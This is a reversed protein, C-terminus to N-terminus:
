FIFRRISFKFASLEQKNYISFQIVINQFEKVIAEPQYRNWRRIQRPWRRQVDRTKGSLQWVLMQNTKFHLRKTSNRNNELLHKTSHM